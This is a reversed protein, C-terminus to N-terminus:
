KRRCPTVYVDDQSTFADGNRLTGTVVTVTTDCTIGTLQTEAHCVLDLRGDDDVDEGETACDRVSDETGTAGFRLNAPDVDAVGDLSATSLVAFPVVGQKSINVASPLSRPKTDTPQWRLETSNDAPARDEAHPDQAANRLDATVVVGHRETAEPCLLRWSLSVTQPTDVQLLLPVDAPGAPEATCGLEPAAELRLVAHVDEAPGRNVVPLTATCTSDTLSSERESCTLTLSGVGLDAEEFVEVVDVASSAREDGPALEEVHLQDATATAEATFPHFSRDTCTVLYSTSVAAPDVASVPVDEHLEAQGPAPEASCDTPVHLQTSTTVTTPEHPGATAAQATVVCTFVIDVDVRGPCDVVPTTISIDTKDFVEPVHTVTATNSTSDPDTVGPTIITLDDIFTMPHHSPETCVVNVSFDVTQPHGKVLTRRTRQYAPDALCDGPVVVRVGDEVEVVDAPGRNELIARVTFTTTQHAEMRVAPAVLEFNVKVADARTQVNGFDGVRLVADGIGNHVDVFQRDATTRQWGAQPTEEVYYRGPGHGRLAFSYDGNGDSTAEAVPGTPQGVFSAYRM